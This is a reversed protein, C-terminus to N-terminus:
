GKAPALVRRLNELDRLVLGVDAEFQQETMQPLRFVTFLVEAEGGNPVVRLPVYVTAGTPTTVHHDVVGFQNREVFRIRVEGQPTAAIWEDQERRMATLFESWRPFNSPDALYDRLGRGCTQQSDRQSHPSAYRLFIAEGAMMWDHAEVACNKRCRERDLAGCGCDLAVRRRDIALVLLDIAGRYCRVTVWFRNLTAQLPDPRPRM